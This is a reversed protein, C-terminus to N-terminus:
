PALKLSEAFDVCAGAHDGSDFKKEGSRFLQEARRDTSLPPPAAADPEAAAPAALTMVVSLAISAAREPGSASRLGDRGIARTKSRRPNKMRAHQPVEAPPAQGDVTPRTHPADAQREA